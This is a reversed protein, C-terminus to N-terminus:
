QTNTLTSFPLNLNIHDIEEQELRNIEDIHYVMVNQLKPHYFRLLSYAPVSKFGRRVKHTGGAGPNYKEIGHEIAWRIPQYYCVNFHLANFKKSSGWYRGFLQDNKFILLAMASPPTLISKEHAAVFLLRHRYSRYLGEFFNRNLYKCGWPGFKDNTNTYYRYMLPPFDAPVEDGSYTKVLLGQKEMAIEERRINRRQNTNFQALYDGFCKFNRNEWIFSQHSWSYYGLNIMLDKWRKEAFLFHSGSLDHEICFQDIAAIMLGTIKFEDIGPATLFRYGSVPTVPSMGTLKPYYRIGLRSAVDAWAYDYVFEGESHMKIYLPAGAVLEKGSWITLHNPIWGTKETISGSEEMQHLWDWELFPTKLCLALRDWQNRDIFAIRNKWSIHFRHKGLENM